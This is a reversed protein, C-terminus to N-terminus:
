FMRVLNPAQSMALLACQNERALEFAANTFGSESFVASYDCRHLRRGAVVEQVGKVGVPKGHAKCQIAYRLGDLEAIVDVGGDNSATTLNAEFGLAVLAKQVAEEYDLGAPLTALSVEGDLEYYSYLPDLSEGLMGFDRLSPSPYKKEKLFRALYKDCADHFPNGALDYKINTAIISRVQFRYM